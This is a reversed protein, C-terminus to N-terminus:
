VTAASVAQWRDLEKRQTDIKERIMGMADAGLPLRNPPEAAYVAEMMALAGKRPDGATPSAAMNKFAEGLQKDIEKYPKSPKTREISRSGFDTQFYGPEIITLKIGFSAIEQRLAESIGEVAHKTACYIGITPFAVQGVVSSINLIRGSRQKRMVPLIAQAVHMLGFVNTDFIRKVAADTVDEIAGTLGYGANNVLVDIRKFAGVAKQVAAAIQARKTVDLKVALAQGPYQKELDKITEPKRATAIVRDGRKLVEEALCRGFGSSTGTIFWVKTSNAKAM